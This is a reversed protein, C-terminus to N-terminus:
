APFAYSDMRLAGFEVNSHLRKARAGDGAAGLAVFVSLLHEDTPHQEVAAPALGRYALLDDIWSGMLAADFWSVFAASGPLGPVNIAERNLIRLNHTFSGFGIM